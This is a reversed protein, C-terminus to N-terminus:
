GAVTGVLVLRLLYKPLPPPLLGLLLWEPAGWSGGGIKGSLTARTGTPLSPSNCIAQPGLHTFPLPLSSFSTPVKCDKSEAWCHPGLLWQSISQSTLLSTRTGLVRAEGM